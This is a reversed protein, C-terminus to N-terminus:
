IDSRVFGRGEHGPALKVVLVIRLGDFSKCLPRPTHLCNAPFSLLRNARPLVAAAIDGQSNFVVTEGCWEPKWEPALYLVTTLEDTRETDTHPWGETGFTHANLYYRLVKTEPPVLHTLLWDLYLTFAKAPHQRVKESVDQTNEKRGHGVEHHWYRMNPNSPTNWGFQWGINRATILLERYLEVPLPNDFQQIKGYEIQFQNM